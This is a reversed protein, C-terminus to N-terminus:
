PARLLRITMQLLCIVVIGQSTIYLFFYLRIILNGNYHLTEEQVWSLCLLSVLYWTLLLVPIEGLTCLARCIGPM